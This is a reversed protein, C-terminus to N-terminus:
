HKIRSCLILLLLCTNTRWEDTKSDSSRRLAAVAAGASLKAERLADTHASLQLEWQGVVAAAGAQLDGHAGAPIEGGSAWLPLLTVRLSSSSGWGDDLQVGGERIWEWWEASVDLQAHQRLLAGLHLCRDLFVCCIGYEIFDKLCSPFDLNLRTASLQSCRTSWSDAKVVTDLLAGAATQFSAAPWRTANLFGSFSPTEPAPGWGGPRSSTRPHSGRANWSTGM